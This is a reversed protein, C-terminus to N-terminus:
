PAPYEAEDCVVWNANVRKYRFTDDDGDQITFFKLPPARNSAKTIYRLYKESPHPQGGGTLDITVVRLSVFAALM